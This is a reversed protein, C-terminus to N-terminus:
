KRVASANPKLRTGLNTVRAFAGRVGTTPALPSSSPPEPDPVGRRESNPGDHNAEVVIRPGLARVKVTEGERIQDKLLRTSLANVIDRQIMRNLPRAGLFGTSVSDALSNRAASDVDLELNRRKMLEQVENLRLDM